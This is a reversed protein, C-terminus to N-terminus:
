YMQIGCLKLNDMWKWEGILKVLTVVNKNIQRQYSYEDMMNRVMHIGLGGIEREELSKAIDPTEQGFPNFPVGTDKITLVLRNGSLEFGVEIEKEKEGHYAYTIINNLMEDLVISISQRIPDPLANEQAFNSFQAEVIEM